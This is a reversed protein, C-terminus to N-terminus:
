SKSPNLLIKVLSEIKGWASRVDKETSNWNEDHNGMNMRALSYPQLPFIM